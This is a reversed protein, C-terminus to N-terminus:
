KRKRFWNFIKVAMFAYEIWTFAGAVRSMWGGASALPNNNQLNEVKTQLRYKEIEMRAQVLARRMQIEQLTMGAWNDAPDNHYPPLNIM